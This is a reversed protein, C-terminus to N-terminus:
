HMSSMDDTIDITRTVKANGNADLIDVIVKEKGYMSLCPQINMNHKYIFNISGQSTEIDTNCEVLGGGVGYCGKDTVSVGELRGTSLKANTIKGQFVKLQDADQLSGSAVVNGTTGGKNAVAVGLVVGVVVLILFVTIGKNM